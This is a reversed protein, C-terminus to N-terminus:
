AGPGSVYPPYPNANTAPAGIQYTNPDCACGDSYSVFTSHDKCQVDCCQKTPNSDFSLGSCVLPLSAFSDPVSNCHEQEQIINCIGDCEAHVFTHPFVILSLTLFLIYLKKM